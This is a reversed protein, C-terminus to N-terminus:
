KQRKKLPAFTFNTVYYTFDKEHIRKKKKQRLGIFSFPIELNKGDGSQSRVVQSFTSEPITLAWTTNLEATVTKKGPVLLSELIGLVLQLAPDRPLCPLCCGRKLLMIGPSSCSCFPPIYLVSWQHRFLIFWYHIMSHGCLHACGIDGEPPDQSQAVLGVRGGQVQLDVSCTKWILPVNDFWKKVVM